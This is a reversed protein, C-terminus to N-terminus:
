LDYDLASAVPRVQSALTALAQADVEQQGGPRGRRFFRDQTSAAEIFRGKAEREVMKDFSCTDVAAQAAQMDVEEHGLWTLTLALTDLPMEYLDEYRVVLVDINPDKELAWSQVNLAWSGVVQPVRQGRGIVGRENTMLQIATQADLGFHDMFSPLVDLPNRVMYVVKKCWAPHFLPLGAVSGRMQHTKVLLKDKYYMHQMTAMAAGRVLAVDLAEMDRVPKVSVLQTFLTATDMVTSVNRKQTAELYTALLLRMWTNGSKPYSAVWLPEQPGEEHFLTDLARM